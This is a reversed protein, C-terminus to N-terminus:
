CLLVPRWSNPTSRGCQSPLQVHGEGPGTCKVVNGIFSYDGLPIAALDTCDADTTSVNPAVIFTQM